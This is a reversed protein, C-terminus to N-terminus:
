AAHKVKRRRWAYGLGLFVAIGAGTLTTPEPVSTLGLPVGDIQFAPRPSDSSESIWGGYGSGVDVRFALNTGNGNDGTNNGQWVIMADNPAMVALWYTSGAYLVPNIASTATVLSTSFSINTVLITELPTSGPLGNVDPLLVIDVANVGSSYKLPLEAATFTFDSTGSITFMAAQDVGYDPSNPGTIYYQTPGYSDNTGLNSFVIGARAQGTAGVALGLVAVALVIQKSTSKM